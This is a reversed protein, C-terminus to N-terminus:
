AVLTNLKAHSQVRAPVGFAVSGSPLDTVIVAGAGVVTGAGVRCGPKACCGTGLLVGDGVVVNGALHVGPGTTVFDGLRCDHDITAGTNIVCHKGVVADPQIVAGAAIVTGEGIQATSDVYSFPHVVATWHLELSEAIRRRAASDGVAIVARVERRDKAKSIPGDIAAGSVFRGWRQPNDDLVGVVEFGAARATSVVVKAHRGGGIVLLPPM